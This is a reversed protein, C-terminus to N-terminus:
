GLAIRLRWFCEYFSLDAKNCISELPLGLLLSNPILQHQAPSPVSFGSGLCLPHRPSLSEMPTAPVAPSPQYGHAAGCAGTGQLPRSVLELSPTNDRLQPLKM